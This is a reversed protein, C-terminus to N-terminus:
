HHTMQSPSAIDIMNSQDDESSALTDPIMAQLRVISVCCLMHTICCILCDGALRSQMNHDHGAEVHQHLPLMRLQCRREFISGQWAPHYTRPLMVNYVTFQAPTRGEAGSM